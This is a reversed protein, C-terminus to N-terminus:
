EHEVEIITTYDAPMLSPREGAVAVATSWADALCASAGTVVVFHRAQLSAGTRPDLIHTEGNSVQSFPRSVALAADRLDIWPLARSRALGIRWAAADPPSGIALVSSTGGHLLAATVGGARLIQAARDLAYGKAIAGLDLRVDAGGLRISCTMDDLIIRGSGLTIDFAGASRAHIACAAQFLRFTPLDLRVPKRAATRVIHSLLSDPSFRTLSRHLEEVEFLAEELLPQVGAEDDTAIVFEFRTGMAATAGRTASLM